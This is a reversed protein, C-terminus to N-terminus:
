HKVQLTAALREALCLLTFTPNATGASPLVGTSALWLNDLGWVKLNRDVVAAEDEGMRCTGVPHYADYPKGIPQGDNGSILRPILEPLGAKIGPWRALLRRATTALGTIDQQSISWDIQAIRRGYADTRDTLSVRNERVPHQEMDMQLHAETGPPIFLRSEVLRGYALRMIDGLGGFLMNASVAPFRREQLSLLVSKALVFGPSHNDFIFHAFSRPSDLRTGTELFRFGRMWGLGFRPAFLRAAQDRCSATVDAIPLSLHDGLYCGPLSTSRLTPQTCTAQIELLVRASEIAGACLVFRGARVQLEHGNRAVVKLQAIRAKGYRGSQLAWEKAVANFFVRLGANRDSVQTLLNVMNKNRFPLYLGSQVQLGSTSLDKSIQGLAREAFTDFDVDGRYGLRQLVTPAEERVVDLVQLWAAAFPDPERRDADSHPVLAGGWRTTSGGMGFFRGATAGTYWDRGFIPDFGVATADVGTKPGAEILVVTRGFQLLKTALYIGVAGAGIICIDAEVPCTLRPSSALDTWTVRSM